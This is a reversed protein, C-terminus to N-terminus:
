IQNDRYRLKNPDTRIRKALRENEKQSESFESKPTSTAGLIM